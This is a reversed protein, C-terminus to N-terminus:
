RAITSHIFREMREASERKMYDTVHGYIDLTFATSHHGLNEQATKPNGDARCSITAFTRRLDHFRLHPPDLQNAIQKFNKYATHRSLPRGLKDTFVLEKGNHWTADAHLPM